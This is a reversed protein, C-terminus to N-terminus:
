IIVSVTRIRQMGRRSLIFQIQRNIRAETWFTLTYWCCCDVYSFYRNISVLVGDENRKAFGNINPTALYLFIYYRNDTSVGHKEFPNLGTGGYGGTFIRYENNLIIGPYFGFEIPFRQVVFFNRAGDLANLIQVEFREIQAYRPNGYEDRIRVTIPTGDEYFYRAQLRETIREIHEEETFVQRGCGLMGFTSLLLVVVLGLAAIQRVVKKM